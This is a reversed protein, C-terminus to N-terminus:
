DIATLASRNGACRDIREHGSAPKFEAAAYAM